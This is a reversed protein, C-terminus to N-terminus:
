LVVIRGSGSSAARRRTAAGYRALTASVLPVVGRDRRDWLWAGATGVPRRRAAVVAADLVPQGAHTIRAAEVDNAFGMCASALDRSSVVRVKARARELESVLVAAPSFGDVLIPVRHGAHETLWALVQYPDSQALVVEVHTTTTDADSWAAAACLAGRGDGDVGIAAPPAGAAPGPGALAVWRVPDLAQEVREVSWINLRERRFGDASLERREARMAALEIRGPNAARWVTEDDLDAGDPAGYELWGLSKDTGALAAARLRRWVPGDSVMTPATGCLWTQPNAVASMAPKSSEWM